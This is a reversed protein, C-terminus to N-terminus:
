SGAGWIDLHKRFSRGGRRSKRLLQTDPVAAAQARGARMDAKGPGRWCSAEVRDLQGPEWPFPSALPTSPQMLSEHGRSFIFSLQALLGFHAQRLSPIPPAAPSTLSILLSEPFNATLLGVLLGFNM